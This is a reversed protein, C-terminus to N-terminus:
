LLTTVITRIGCLRTKQQFIMTKLQLFRNIGDLLDARVMSIEDIILLDLNQYLERGRIPRLSEPDILKPPFRFFSHITQGGVNIAAIGTPALVVINKKTIEKYYQLFTSKGTGAKGTVYLNRDEGDIKKLALKFDENIEIDSIDFDKQKIQKVKKM